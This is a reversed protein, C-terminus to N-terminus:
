GSKGLYSGDETSVKVVQGNEVFPPVRTKLGTELEAEKLQNTATAGKVQPATDTVELEVAAPLEITLVNDQYVLGTVATNPKVYLLADGLIDEPITSQEYSENDMFVAGSGDTYLYELERRDLNVIDINDTSRFRKEVNTGSKVSKLKAQVFAGGKGPKTHETKVCLWLQGDLDVANGPKLDNARM